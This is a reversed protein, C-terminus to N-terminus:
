RGPVKHADQLLRIIEQQQTKSESSGSGGRGTNLRALLMPDSGSRNARTPDAGHALLVRVAEACRTRVAKHLPAVGTKNMANPDAGADTLASISAAQAVPNWRSSNPNGSAACHLPEDGLRNRARVDAGAKILIRVMEPNHAAAAFHLATDGRYIYKGLQVVLNQKAAQRTANVVEFRTRALDPSAALLKLFEDADGAAIAMVLRRLSLDSDGM